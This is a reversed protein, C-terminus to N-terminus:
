SVLGALAGKPFRVQLITSFLLFLVANLAIAYALAVLPRKFGWLLTTMAIFAFMGAFFDFWTSIAFAIFMAAIMQYALRPVPEPVDLPLKRSEYLLLGALGLIVLLVGQPFSAPQIGQALADPVRRIFTSLYYVGVCVAVIIAANTYENYFRSRVSRVAEKAVDPSKPEAM